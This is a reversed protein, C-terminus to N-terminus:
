YTQSRLGVVTLMQIKNVPEFNHKTDSAIRLDRRFSCWWSISKLTYAVSCLYFQTTMHLKVLGPLCPLLMSFSVITIGLTFIFRKRKRRFYLQISRVEVPGLQAKIIRRM